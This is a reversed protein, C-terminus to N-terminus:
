LPSLLIQKLCILAPQEALLTSQEAELLCLSFIVHVHNHQPGRM